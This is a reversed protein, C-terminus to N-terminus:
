QVRSTVFAKWFCAEQAIHQSALWQKERPLLPPWDILSASDQNSWFTLIDGNHQCQKSM